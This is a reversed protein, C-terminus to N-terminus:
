HAALAARVARLNDQTKPLVKIIRFHRDKMIIFCLYDEKLNPEAEGKMRVKLVVDIAERGCAEGKLFTSLHLKEAPYSETHRTGMGFGLSLFDAIVIMDAQKAAEDPSLKSGPLQVPNVTRCLALCFKAIVM